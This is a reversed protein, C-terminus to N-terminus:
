TKKKKWSSNNKSLVKLARRVIVIKRRVKGGPCVFRSQTKFQTERVNHFKVSNCYPCEFSRAKTLDVRQCLLPIRKEWNYKKEWKNQTKSCQSASLIPSLNQSWFIALCKRSFKGCEIGRMVSIIEFDAACPCRFLGQCWISFFVLVQSYSRLKSTIM